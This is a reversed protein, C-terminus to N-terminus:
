MIKGKIIKLNDVHFSSGHNEVTAFGHSHNNIPMYKPHLECLCGTSWAGVINGNIDQEQHQSVQHHHGGLVNNKAKLFFGRAPNVPAAFGRAFEHGHVINLKGAMIIRKNGVVQIGLEKASIVNEFTFLELDLLEPVRNLIHSEYRMEHNGQRFVIRANKFLDRLQIVFNRFMDLEYKFSRARIDREFRSLQYADIIDGNLLICEPKWKRLYNIAANLADKDYYPFHIDSLIGIRSERIVFKSYDNKEPEPLSLGKWEIRTKIEKRKANGSAGTAERVTRRGDEANTFLSRHREHLIEGLKKKSLTCKGDKASKEKILEIALQYKNM